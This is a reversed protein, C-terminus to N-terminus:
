QYPQHDDWNPRRHRYTPSISLGAERLTVRGNEPCSLRYPPSHMDGGSKVFIPVKETKLNESFYKAELLGKTPEPRHAVEFILRGVM